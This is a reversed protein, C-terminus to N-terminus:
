TGETFKDMIHQKAAEPIQKVAEAETLPCWAPRAKEADAGIVGRHTLNCIAFTKLPISKNNGLPCKVCSEPLDITITVTVKSM